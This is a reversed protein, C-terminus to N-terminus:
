RSVYGPKYVDVINPVLDGFDNNKEDVSAKVPVEQTSDLVPKDLLM